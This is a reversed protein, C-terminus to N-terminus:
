ISSMSDWGIVMVGSVAAYQEEEKRCVAKGPWIARRKRQDAKIVKILFMPFRKSVGKYSNLQWDKLDASWFCNRILKHQKGALLLVREPEAFWELFPHCWGLYTKGSGRNDWIQCRQQMTELQRQFQFHYQAITNWINSKKESIRNVIKPFSSSSFILYNKYQTTPQNPTPPDASM